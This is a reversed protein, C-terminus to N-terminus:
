APTQAWPHAVQSRALWRAVHWGLRPAELLVRPELAVARVFWPLAQRPSRGVLVAAAACELYLHALTPNRLRAAEDPLDARAFFREVARTAEFVVKGHGRRTKSDAHDAIVALTEGALYLPRAHRWARLWLDYDLALGLSEDLPGTRDLLSRRVFSAPQWIPSRGGLATDLRFPQAPCPGLVGDPEAVLLCDGYVWSVGADSAFAAVVKRLAGPTYYDDSNLWAVIEGTAREFGKNIAHAQGRDPEVVWYDLYPAYRAIIERSGDTSGGDIVIYEINPYDQLLVSRITAELFRAQNLSPTVISVRVAPEVAGPGAHAGSPGAPQWPWGSKAPPPDPLDAVRPM